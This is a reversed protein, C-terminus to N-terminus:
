QKGALLLRPANEYLPTSCFVDIESELSMENSYNFETNSEIDSLSRLLNATIDDPKTVVLMVRTM